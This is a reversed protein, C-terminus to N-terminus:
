NGRNLYTGFVINLQSFFFKQQARDAESKTTRIDTLNIFGAKFEPQIFFGKGRTINLGTIAAVGYGSWHFEDHREKGLLTANTRPYLGGFGIGEKLHFNWKSRNFLHRNHRLEINIYNLGDTHEFRLFDETIVFKEGAYEGNFPSGPIDIIGNIQATQNTEMVYKMHDTGISIDYNDKFAFGVKFNFQPITLTKPYFYTKSFKTPRDSADVNELTFNYNEGTFTIDSSSFWSRNWGWYVYFSNKSITNELADQGLSSLSATLLMLSLFFVRM